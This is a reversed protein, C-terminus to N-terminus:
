PGIQSDFPRLLLSRSSQAQRGSGRAEIMRLYAKSLRTGARSNGPWHARGGVPRALKRWLFPEQESEDDGKPRGKDNREALVRRPIEAVVMPVDGIGEQVPSRCIVDRDGMLRGVVIRKEVDREVPQRRVRM